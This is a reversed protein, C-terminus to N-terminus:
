SVVASVLASVPASVPAAGYPRTTTHAQLQRWLRPDTAARGPYRAAFELDRAPVTDAVWTGPGTPFEVQVTRGDNGPWEGEIPFAVRFAADYAPAIRRARPWMRAHEAHDAATLKRGPTGNYRRTRYCHWWTLESGLRALGQAAWEILQGTRQDRLASPPADSAYLAVALEGYPLDYV